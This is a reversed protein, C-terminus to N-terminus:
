GTGQGAGESGLFFRNKFDRLIQGGKFDRLIRGGEHNGTESKGEQNRTM